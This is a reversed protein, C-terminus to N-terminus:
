RAEVRPRTAREDDNSAPDTTLSKPLVSSWVVEGTVWGDIGGPNLEIEVAGQEERKVSSRAIYRREKESRCASSKQGIFDVVVKEVTM